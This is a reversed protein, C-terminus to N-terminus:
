RLYWDHWTDITTNNESLFRGINYYPDGEELVDKWKQKFLYNENKGVGDPILLPIYNNCIAKCFPTFINEIGLQRLRLCFDVDFMHASFENESFGNIKEFLTKKVMFLDISVALVNQTCILSNFHRSSDRFFDGYYQWSRDDLEPLASCGKGTEGAYEILGGVVGSNQLQSHELLIQVWDDQDPFINASVFLLHDGKCTKVANNMLKSLNFQKKNRHFQCKHKLGLFYSEFEGSTSGPFLCHIDLYENDLINKKNDFWRTIQEQNDSFIIFLSVSPNELIERRVNYFYKWQGKEVYGKISRRRLADNLARMGAADAYDKQNHNVSTSSEHARWHYLIKPIHHINEGIETLKLAMDYDQAGTCEHSFGGTQRFLSHRTVLFHTIYNHTLLLENNYDPKYFSELHRSELNVLDEDCYLVDPDHENIVAVVEYLADITLEDDHDLFGLYDGTAMAVAHNTANAIGQNKDLFKIKIRKDLESYHTLIERISEKVSGDDVLCLEWHPYAQYLVSNICKRLLLDDTEYVPTIISVLPKLNLKEIEECSYNGSFVGKELYSLLAFCQNNNNKLYKNEYYGPDFLSSPRKQDFVGKTAYHIFLQLPSLDDLSNNNRYFDPDFLRSPSAGEDVGFSIFHVLANIGIKEVTPNTEHYYGIDFFPFPSRKEKNGFRVFHDLPNMGSIVVDQNETLYYNPDFLPNPQKGQKWGIKMYHGLPTLGVHLFEPYNQEYYRSFFLPCPDNGEQWGIQIYHLLTDMNQNVNNQERYWDNEFLLCPNRGELSGRQLYHILPDIVVPNLGNDNSLYYEEDFIGSNKILRYNEHFYYYYLSKLNRKIIQKNIELWSTCKMPQAVSVKQSVTMQKDNDQNKHDLIAQSYYNLCQKGIAHYKLEIILKNFDSTDTPVEVLSISIVPAVSSFYLQTGKLFDANSKWSLIKQEGSKSKIVIDHISIVASDNIPFFDISHSSCSEIPFALKQTSLDVKRIWHEKSYDSNSELGVLKAEYYPSISDLIKDVWVHINQSFLNQHKHFIATFTELKHNRPRARVMSDDSVRYYFLIEPIQHVTRGMELLSLWFDYDEWGHQMSTDYGGISKYDEMRFLASCFIINDLLMRELSYEPLLWETEVSGFLQARCYVIGINKNTELIKISKELYTPEIKDDADLPLIYKGTAEAIGNNRAAALGQNKTNIVKTKPKNYSRLLLNTSEDTSGDNIIIIEFDSYSQALVSKVAEDIFHGQNYCPIIISATAM